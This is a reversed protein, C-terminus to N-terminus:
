HNCTPQSDLPPDFSAAIDKWNIIKFNQNTKRGQQDTNKGDQVLMMGAPFIENIPCSVIAIGDTDSCPDIEATQHTKFVGTYTPQGAKTNFVAYRNNGQSSVLLYDDKTGYYMALGELDGKLLPYDKLNILMEPIAEPQLTWQWIGGNEEALYLKKNNRDYVLGETQSPLSFHAFPATEIESEGRSKLTFIEISGDTGSVAALLGKESPLFCFGYVENVRVQTKGVPILSATHPDLFYFVLTNDSRNSGGVLPLSSGAIASLDVNNIKGFPFAKILSGGLTYLELGRKKDTGIIISSEPNNSDYYFAPDDAADDPSFVAQTELSLPVRHVKKSCALTVFTTFSLLLVSFFSIRM